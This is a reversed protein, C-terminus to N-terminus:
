DIRFSLLGSYENFPSITFSFSWYKPRMIPLVSKNSFVRLGSFISPQLLLLRCLILPNSPMVSEISMLKHLRQSNTISLSPQRAATWPTAFLRVLSLSQVSQSYFIFYIILSSYIFFVYKINQLLRYPFFIQVHIDYIFIYIYVCVYVCM